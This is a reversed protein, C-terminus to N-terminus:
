SGEVPNIRAPYAAYEINGSCVAVNFDALALRSTVTVLNYYMFTQRLLLM